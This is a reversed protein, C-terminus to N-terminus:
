GLFEFARYPNSKAFIALVIEASLRTRWVSRRVSNV